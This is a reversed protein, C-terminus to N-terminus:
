NINYITKLIIDALAAIMLVVAIIVSIILIGLITNKIGQATNEIHRKKNKKM